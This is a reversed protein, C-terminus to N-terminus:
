KYTITMCLMDYRDYTVPQHNPVNPNNKGRNPIMMRIKIYKESPYTDGGVLNADM